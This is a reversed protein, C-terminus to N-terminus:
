RSKSLVIDSAKSQERILETDDLDGLITKFDPYAFQVQQARGADRVLSTIHLDAYGARALTHLIDGGIFSDDM